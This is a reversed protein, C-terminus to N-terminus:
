GEDDRSRWLSPVWLTTWANTEALMELHESTLCRADELDSRLSLVSLREMCWDRLSTLQLVRNLIESDESSHMQSEDMVIVGHRHPSQMKM